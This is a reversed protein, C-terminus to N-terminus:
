FGYAIIEVCVIALHRRVLVISEEEVLRGCRQELRGM